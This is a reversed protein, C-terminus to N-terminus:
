SACVGWLRLDARVRATTVGCGVQDTGLDKVTWGKATHHLVVQAPDVDSSRPAVLASAWSGSVSSVRIQNVVVGTPPVEGLLPSKEVAKVIAARTAASPTSATPKVVVKAGSDTPTSASGTDAGSVMAVGVLGAAAISLITRKM